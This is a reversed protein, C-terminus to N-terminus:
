KEEKKFKKKEKKKKKKKKKQCNQSCFSNINVMRITENLNHM